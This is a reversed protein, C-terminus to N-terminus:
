DNGLEREFLAFDEDSAMELLQFEALLQMEASQQPLLVVLKGLLTTTIPSYIEECLLRPTQIALTATPSTKM